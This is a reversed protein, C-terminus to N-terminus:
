GGLAATRRVGWDALRGFGASEHFAGSGALQEPRGIAGSGWRERVEALAETLRLSMPIPSREPKSFLDLQQVPEGLESVSVGIQIIRPFRAAPAAIKWAGLFIDRGDVAPAPLRAHNYCRFGESGRIYVHVRSAALGHRYLRRAVMDSLHYLVPRLFRPARYARELTYQHGISKPREPGHSFPRSGGADELQGLSWVQYGPMGWAAVLRSKPYRRLDQLSRIGLTALRRASRNAIGPIDTLAIQGYLWERKEPPAVTLGNPKELESAVKAAVKSWSLGISCLFWDGVERPMRGKIERAIREAEVWPDGAGRATSSSAASLDCFLEDISYLEVSNSYDRVLKLLRETYFRYRQFATPVLAIGPCMARAERVPTVSKIGLRKAEISAAIIIGGLHECVGVPRGRLEPDDQQAVSAFYSNMDLHM